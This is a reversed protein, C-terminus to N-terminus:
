GGASVIQVDMMGVGQWNNNVNGPRTIEIAVSVTYTGSPYAETSMAEITTPSDRSLGPSTGTDWYKETCVFSPIINGNVMVRYSTFPAQTNKDTDEGIKYSVRFNGAVSSQVQMTSLERAERPFYKSWVRSSSATGGGGGSGGGSTDTIKKISGWNTISLIITGGDPKAFEWDEASRPDDPPLDEFTYLGIKQEVFDFHGFQDYGVIYAGLFIRHDKGNYDHHSIFFGKGLNSPIAEISIPYIGRLEFPTNSAGRKTIHGQKDIIIDVDFITVIGEEVGSDEHIITYIGALKDIDIVPGGMIDIISGGGGGGSGGVVHGYADLTFGGTTNGGVPSQAHAIMYPDDDVGDGVVPLVDPTLSILTGGTASGSTDRSIIFENMGTGCGTVTIGNIGRAYVKASLRGAADQSLLNCNDPAISVTGGGGGGGGGGSGACPPPTYIPLASNFAGVICGNQVVINNYSGDAVAPSGTITFCTGDFNLRLGLGLCANVSPCVTQPQPTPTDSCPTNVDFDICPCDDIKDVM